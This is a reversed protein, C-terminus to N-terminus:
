ITTRKENSQVTAYEETFSRLGRQYAWVDMGVFLMRAGLDVCQQAHEPGRPMIGWAVSASKAAEAVRRIAQWLDPHDWQGILGMSQALDAPGIFLIDIGPIAAIAEVERVADIHEIQIAIFVDRNAQAMYDQFPRTAYRGDVGAGNLGREGEPHFRCWGVIRRAEAASRVQAAMIGGAGAELPRMVTAYDTPALRVFNALGAARAALCAIEMQPITLGAHEQDLWIGDYGGMVAVMDVIKPGCLQGIGFIKVVKGHTMARTLEKAQM